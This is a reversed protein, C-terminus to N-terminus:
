IDIFLFHKVKNLEGIKLIENSFKHNRIFEFKNEYSKITETLQSMQQKIQSIRTNLNVLEAENLGDKELKDKSADIQFKVDDEYKSSDFNSTIENLIEDCETHLNTENKKVLKVIKNTENSITQKITTIKTVHTNLKEERNNKLDQRIENLEIYSKLSDSKLKDYSSEPIFELVAHNPMILLKNKEKFCVSCKPCKKVQM